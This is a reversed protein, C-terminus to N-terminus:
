DAPMEEGAELNKLESLFIAYLNVAYKVDKRLSGTWRGRGHSALMGAALTAAIEEDRESM